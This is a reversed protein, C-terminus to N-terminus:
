SLRFASAKRIWWGTFRSRTHSVFMDHHNQGAKICVFDFLVDPECEDVCGSQGLTMVKALLFQAEIPPQRGGQIQVDNGNRPFRAAQMHFAFAYDRFIRYTDPLEVGGLFQRRQEIVM